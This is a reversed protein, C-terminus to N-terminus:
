RSARNLIRNTVKTFTIAFIRMRMMFLSLNATANIRVAQNSQPDTDPSIALHNLSPFHYGDLRGADFLGKLLSINSTISTM